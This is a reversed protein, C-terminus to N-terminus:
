SLPFRRALICSCGALGPSAPRQREILPVSGGGWGPGGHDGGRGMGGPGMGGHGMGGHAMGRGFAFGEM